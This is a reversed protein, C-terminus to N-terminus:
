DGRPAPHRRRMGAVVLLLSGLGVLALTSPEPIVLALQNNQTGFQYDILYGDPLNVVDLFADGSLSGYEAFVYHDNTMTGSFVFQVVGNTMDFLGDVRLMDSLGQSGGANSLDIQLVGDLDVTNSITLAGNLSGPAIAGGALVKVAAGIVGTGGLTGGDGVGYEGLTAGMHTGNVILTGDAVTTAGTYTNAGALTLVGAGRKVLSLIGDSGNELVGAFVGDISNSVTLAATGSAGNRVISNGVIPGTTLGGVTVDHGNLSLVKTRNTSAFSVINPNVPNLAESSGLTLYGDRIELGGTFSNSGSLVLMGIGGKRLQYNAGGDSITGSIESVTATATGISPIESVRIQRNGTLTVPGAVTIHNFGNTPGAARMADITVDGDIIVANTLVRWSNSVMVAPQRSVLRSGQRMVLAGVGLWSNTGSDPNTLSAPPNRGFILLGNTDLTVGGSFQNAPNRITGAGGVPVLISFPTAADGGWDRILTSDQIYASGTLTLTNSGEITMSNLTMVGRYFPNPGVFQLLAGGTGSVAPNATGGEEKIIGAVQQTGNLTITYNGTADTGASFVAVAGQTWNSTTGTGAPDTSWWANTWRGIPSPGGAGATVGNTDWWNTILQAALDGHTLLTLFFGALAAVHGRRVMRLGFGASVKRVPHNERGRYFVEIEKKLEAGLRPGM